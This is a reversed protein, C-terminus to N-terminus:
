CSCPAGAAFGAPLSSVHPEYISDNHFHDVPVSLSYAPYLLSPNTDQLVAATDRRVDSVRAYEREVAAASDTLEQLDRISFQTRLTHEAQANAVCLAGIATLASKWAM